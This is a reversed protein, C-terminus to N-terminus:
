KVIEVIEGPEAFRDFPIPEVNAWYDFVSTHPWPRPRSEIWNRFRGYYADNNLNEFRWHKPRKIGDPLLASGDGFAADM